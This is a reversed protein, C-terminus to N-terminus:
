PLSADKAALYLEITERLQREADAKDEVASVSNSLREAHKVQRTRELVRQSQADKATETRKSSEWLSRLRQSMTHVFRADYLGDANLVGIIDKQENELRDLRGQLLALRADEIRQMQKQVALIRQAKQKRNL